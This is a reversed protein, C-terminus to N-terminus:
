TVKDKYYKKVRLIQYGTNRPDEKSSCHFNLQNLVETVRMFDEKSPFERTTLYTLSKTNDSVHHPNLGQGPFKWM